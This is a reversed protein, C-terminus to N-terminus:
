PEAAQDMALEITATYVGPATPVPFHYVVHFDQLPPHSFRRSDFRFVPLRRRADDPDPLPVINNHADRIEVSARVQTLFKEGRPGASPQSVLNRVELYLRAQGNPRYPENPPRADYNGFGYVERCFLVTEVRLPARPELRAAASRLQELLMAIAVTDSTLDATAGRALVPLLALVLDQNPKDLAMIHEIAREQRGEIFARVAALLPPETAVPTRAVAMPLVGPDTATTGGAYSPPMPPVLQGASNVGSSGSNNKQVATADKAVPKTPVTEGPRSPYIAFESKRM